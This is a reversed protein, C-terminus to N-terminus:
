NESIEVVNDVGLQFTLDFVLRVVELCCNQHVVLVFQFVVVLLALPHHLFYERVDVFVHTSLDVEALEADL